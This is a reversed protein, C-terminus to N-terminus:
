VAELVSVGDIVPESAGVCVGVILSVPVPLAVGLLLEDALIESEDVDVNVEDILADGLILIVVVDVLEALLLTLLVAVCVGVIDSEGLKPVDKDGLEEALALILTENVVVGVSVSVLDGLLLSVALGM